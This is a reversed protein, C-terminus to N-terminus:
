TAEPKWQSAQLRSRTLYLRAQGRANSLAIRRSEDSSFAALLSSGRESRTVRQQHSVLRGFLGTVEKYNSVPGNACQIQRSCGATINPSSLVTRFKKGKCSFGTYSDETVWNGRRFYLSGLGQSRGDIIAGTMGTRCAPYRTGLATMSRSDVGFDDSLQVSSRTAKQM